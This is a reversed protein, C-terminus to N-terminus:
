KQIKRFKLTGSRFGPVSITCMYFGEPLASTPIQLVRQRGPWESRSLLVGQLSHIETVMNEYYGALDINIRDYCPNPYLHSKIEVGGKDVWNERKIGTWPNNGYVMAENMIMFTGLGHNDNTNRARNYYYSIDSSIGTGECIDTLNVKGDSNRSIKSLVGMYGLDCCTLYSDDLFGSQVAKKMALTYMMTCSTEPWNGPDEMRDVVQYWMGTVPHQYVALAKLLPVYYDILVQRRPDSAPIIDLLEGLAMVVWGISRGWHYPSRKLPSKSWGASGDEDYGHVPLATENNMLHGLYVSFQRVVEDYAIDKENFMTGYTALFPMGMYLGDLWLEGKLEKKHWFGQDSTRPYTDFNARIQGAALRFREIGTELYLHLIMFGPMMNDLSSLPVDITGNESIHLMAWDRVFNLYDRNGTRKYVRLVGELLLGVTYNWAGVTAPTKTYVIMDAILVSWDINEVIVVVRATDNGTGDTVAYTFDDVGTFGEKSKYLLSRGDPMLFLSGSRPQSHGSIALADGNLDVDNALPFVLTQQNKALYLTDDSAVPRMNMDVEDSSIYIKDINPGGDPNSSILKLTNLGSSFSVNFGTVQWNPWTTTTPFSFGQIALTGNVMIDMTRASGGNAFTVDVRYMGSGPLTINWVIYSGTENLFNIFGKGTFGAHNSDINSRYIVDADEAEIFFGSGASSSEFIGLLSFLFLLRRFVPKPRFCVGIMKWKKLM